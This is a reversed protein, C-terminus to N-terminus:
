DHSLDAVIDSVSKAVLAASVAATDFKHTVEPRYTSYLTKKEYNMLGQLSCIKEKRLRSPSNAREGRTIIDCMLEVYIMDYKFRAAHRRANRLQLDFAEKLPVLTTILSSSRSKLVRSILLNRAAVVTSSYGPSTRGMLHSVINTTDHAALIPCSLQEALLRGVTEKGSAPPGFIMILFRREERQLSPHM